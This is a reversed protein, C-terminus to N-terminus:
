FLLEHPKSPVGWATNVDIVRANSVNHVVYELVCWVQWDIALLIAETVGSLFVGPVWLDCNVWGSDVNLDPGANMGVASGFESWMRRSSVDITGRGPYSRLGPITNRSNLASEPTMTLSPRWATLAGLIYQDSDGGTMAADMRAGIGFRYGTLNYVQKARVVLVEQILIDLSGGAQDRNAAGFFARQKDPM